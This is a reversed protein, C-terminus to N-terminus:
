NPTLLAAGRLGAWSSGVVLASDGRAYRRARAQTSLLCNFLSSAAGLEGTSSVHTRYASADDFLDACRLACFGWDTSRSRENNIDVYLESFTAGAGLLPRLQELSHSLAVGQLGEDSSPDASELTLSVGRVRTISRLRLEHLVPRSVLALAVAAEGPAFGGRARARLLRGDADLWALTPADLYSDAAAVVRLKAAGAALETVAQDLVRLGAAHGGMDFRPRTRLPLGHARNQRLAEVIAGARREDLDLRPEPLCVTLASADVFRRLEGLKGALEALTAELLQAIREPVELTTSLRPAPACMIPEGTADLLFPHERVRSIGARVAAASSEAGLGVPSRAAVAIVDVPTM